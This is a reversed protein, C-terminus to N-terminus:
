VTYIGIFNKSTQNNNTNDNGIDKPLSILAFILVNNFNSIKVM